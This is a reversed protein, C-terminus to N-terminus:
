KSLQDLLKSSYLAMNTVNSSFVTFTQNSEIYIPYITLFNHVFNISAKYHKIEMQSVVNVFDDTTTQKFPFEWIPFIPKKHNIKLDLGIRVM